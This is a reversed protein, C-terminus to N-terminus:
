DTSCLISFGRTPPEIGDRSVLKRSSQSTKPSRVRRERRGNSAATAVYASCTPDVHENLAARLNEEPMRGYVREVMRSDAHGMAVGILHPAVGHLRLWTGFTRRLDNPSVAAIGARECAQALDRRANGWPRFLLQGEGEAHKEVHALLDHGAGVVPVTRFALETKTGRLIVREANSQVDQRLARDTEGWRAGTALIFAVRAARDPTLERLLAQAEAASLFRKRPQYGSEFGEPMVAGIDGPFEGRRKAVKLMGRITTLEKKVTNRAAGEALRADIFRDIERATVRALPTDPGLVRAVHGGKALYMNLTGEARGKGARDAILRKLASEVTAQHAAAYAPDAAGREWERLTLEAARRDTCKTSKSVRRGNPEYFWASWVEGRKYLRGAM